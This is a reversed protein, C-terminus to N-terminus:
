DLLPERGVWVYFFSLQDKGQLGFDRLSYVVTVAERLFKRRYIFFKLSNNIVHLSIEKEPSSRCIIAVVVSPAFNRWRMCIDVFWVFAHHNDKDDHLVRPYLNCEESPADRL